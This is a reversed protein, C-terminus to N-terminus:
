PLHQSSGSLVVRIGHDGCGAAIRLDTRLFQDIGATRVYNGPIRMLGLQYLHHRLAQRCSMVFCHILAVAFIGRFPKVDGRHLVLVVILVHRDIGAVLAYSRIDLDFVAAVLEAGIAQDRIGPPSDPRSGLLAHNFFDLVEYLVTEALDHKRTYMKRGVSHLVILLIICKIMYRKQVQYLLNGRNISKFTDPQPREFGPDNGEFKRFGKCRFCFEARVEM